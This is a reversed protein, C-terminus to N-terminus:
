YEFEPWNQAFGSENEEQEESKRKPDKKRKPRLFPRNSFTGSFPVVSIVRCDTSIAVPSDHTARSRLRNADLLQPAPLPFNPPAIEAVSAASINSPTQSVHMPRSGSERSIDMLYRRGEGRDGGGKIDPNFNSLNMRNASHLQFNLPVFRGKAFVNKEVFSDSSFSRASMFKVHTDFTRVPFNKDIRKEVLGNESQFNQFSELLQAAAGFILLFKADTDHCSLVIFRAISHSLENLSKKDSTHAPQNKISEKTKEVASQSQNFQPEQNQCILSKVIKVSHDVSSRHDQIRSLELLANRFSEIAKTNISKSFSDFSSPQILSLM